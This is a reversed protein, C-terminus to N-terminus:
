RSAIPRRCLIAHAAGTRGAASLSALAIANSILTWRLTAFLCLFRLPFLLVSIEQQEKRFRKREKAGKRYINPALHSRGSQVSAPFLKGALPAVKGSGPRKTRRLPTPPSRESPCIRWQDSRQRRMEAQHKIVFTIGSTNGDTRCYGIRTRLYRRHTKKRTCRCAQGILSQNM